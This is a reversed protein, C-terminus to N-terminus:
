IPNPNSNAALHWPEVASDPLLHFGRPQLRGERLGYLRHVPQAQASVGFIHMLQWPQRAFVANSWAQDDKSVFLSTLPCFERKDCSPCSNPDNEQALNPLFNHGHCNGLIRCGSAPYARQRHTLAEQIQNWTRDSFELSYGGQRAHLAEIVDTIVVFFEGCPSACLSGVLVGGSEVPPQSSAGKRACGEAKAFASTTYFVQCDNIETPHICAASALLPELAGLVYTLTPTQVEV